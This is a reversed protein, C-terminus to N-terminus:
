EEVIVTAKNHNVGAIGRRIPVIGAGVIIKGSILRSILPKHFPLVEFCGQEGPLMLSRAKGEFIVRSPSVIM